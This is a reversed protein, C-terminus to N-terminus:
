IEPLAWAGKSSHLVGNEMNTSCLQQDRFDPKAMNVNNM